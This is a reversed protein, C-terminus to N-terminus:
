NQKPESQQDTQLQNQKRVYDTLEQVNQMFVELDKWRKGFPSLPNDELNQIFDQLDRRTMPECSSKKVVSFAGCSELRGCQIDPLDTMDLGLKHLEQRLDDYNFQTSRMNEKILKGNQVITVPTGEVWKRIVLSKLALYALLQQLIVLTALGVFGALLPINQDLSVTILIDGIGVMIVFDFPSFQGVTRNGMFRVISLSIFFILVLRLMYQGIDQLLEM